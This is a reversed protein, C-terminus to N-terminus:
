TMTLFDGAAALPAAEVATRLFGGVSPRERPLPGELRGDRNSEAREFATKALLLPGAPAAAPPPPAGLTVLLASSFDLISPVCSM